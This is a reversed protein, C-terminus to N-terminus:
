QPVSEVYDDGSPTVYVTDACPPDIEIRVTHYSSGCGASLLLLAILYKM